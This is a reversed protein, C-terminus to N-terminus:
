WSNFLISWSRALGTSSLKGVQYLPGLPTGIKSIKPLGYFKPSGCQNSVNKYHYDSLEGTTKINRLM